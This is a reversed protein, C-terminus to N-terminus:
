RAYGQRGARARHDATRNGDHDCVYVTPTGPRKLTLDVQVPEVRIPGTGKELLVGSQIKMDTNRARAITTVILRKATKIDETMGAATVYVAAFSTRTALEVDGLKLSRGGAWGVVAQTAPTDIVIYPQEGEM